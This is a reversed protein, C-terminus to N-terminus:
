STVSSAELARADTHPTLVRLVRELEAALAAANDEDLISAHDGAVTRTEFGAPALDRWGLRPDDLVKTSVPEDAALFHVIRTSLARPAYDRFLLHSWVESRLHPSEPSTLALTAKARFRGTAIRALARLHNAVQRATVGPAGRALGRLLEGSAEAYRSWNRAIKPYGPAPTDFLVLLAVDEGEELLQAATEAAIVGGFCYGALVYPGHKRLARISAASQRALDVIKLARHQQLPPPPCLVTFPQEPGLGRSLHRFQYPNDEANSICFLPIRSGGERLRLVRNPLAAPVSRDGDQELMRALASINPQDFFGAEPLPQGPHLGAAQSLMLAATLSDGGLDFFNDEVGIEHVGLIRRWIELLQAEAETLQRHPEPSAPRAISGSALVDRFQEALASRKPKGLSTRPIRDVFVVRRPVKYAALREAAYRRLELESVDAGERLVVAAAVDEGLTRHPVPFAAVEAVAGHTALVNEPEVPIIKKGGRNIIEKRRGILYLYGEDDL